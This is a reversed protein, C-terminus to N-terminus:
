KWAENALGRDLRASKFTAPSLGCSWTHEPGARRQMESTDCGIRSNMSLTENCDGALLWPGSYADKVRELEDWLEKRLSTDPSAYIASFLWPAEGVKQIEVTLHQSSSGYTSVTVLETGRGRAEARTQGTYGIRDCIRQAQEGSIHTEVLVLVTPDNSRVVEHIGALKKDVGQVNWVMVKISMNFMPFTPFRDYKDM